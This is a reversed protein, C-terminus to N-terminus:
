RGARSRTYKQDFRARDFLERVVPACRVKQVCQKVRELRGADLQEFKKRSMELTLYEHVQEEGRRRGKREPRVVDEFTLVVREVAPMEGFVGRVGSAYQTRGMVFWSVARALLEDDTAGGVTQWYTIRVEGGKLSVRETPHRRPPDVLYIGTLQEVRLKLPATPDDAGYVQAARATVADPRAQALAQPAAGCAAGILVLLPRKL